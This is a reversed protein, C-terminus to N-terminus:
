YRSGSVALSTRDAREDVAKRRAGSRERGRM